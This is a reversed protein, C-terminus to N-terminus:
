QDLDHYRTTSRELGGQNLQLSLEVKSAPFESSNATIPDEWHRLFLDLRYISTVLLVKM